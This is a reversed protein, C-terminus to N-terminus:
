WIQTQKAGVFHLAREMTKLDSEAQRLKQEARVWAKWNKIAQRAEKQKEPKRGVYTRIRYTEDKPQGCQPCWVGTGHLAYVSGHGNDSLSGCCRPLVELESAHQKAKEVDHIREGLEKLIALATEAHEPTCKKMRVIQQVLTMNTM